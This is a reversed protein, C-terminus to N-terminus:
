KVYVKIIIFSILYGIIVFGAITLQRNVKKYEKALELRDMKMEGKIYLNLSPCSPIMGMTEIKM